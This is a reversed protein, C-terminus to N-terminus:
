MESLFTPFPLDKVTFCANFNFCKINKDHGDNDTQANVDHTQYKGM